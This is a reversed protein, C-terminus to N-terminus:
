WVRTVKFASASWPDLKARQRPTQEVPEVHTKAAPEADETPATKSSVGGGAVVVGVGVCVVGVGVVVAVVVVAVVLVDAVVVVPTVVVVAVGWVVRIL